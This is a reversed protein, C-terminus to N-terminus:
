RRDGRVVHDDTRHAGSADDSREGQQRCFEFAHLAQFAAIYVRAEPVYRYWMPTRAIPDDADPNYLDAACMARAVAEIRQLNVQQM